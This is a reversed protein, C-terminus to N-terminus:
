EASPVAIDKYRYLLCYFDPEAEPIAAVIVDVTQGAYDSLDIKLGTGGQFSSNKLSAATDKYGQPTSLAKAVGIVNEGMQSLAEQNGCDHWTLGGDASWVYKSVGGDIICWGTMSIMM